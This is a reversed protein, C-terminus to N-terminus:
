NEVLVFLPKTTNSVMAEFERQNVVEQPYEPTARTVLPTSVFDINPLADAVRCVLGMDTITADRREGTEPDLFNLGTVGMGFHTNNGQLILTENGERDYIVVRKPASDIADEVVRRPIKVIDEDIVKCGADALLERAAETAIRVGVDELVELSAEHIRHLKEDTLLRFRPADESKSRDHESM